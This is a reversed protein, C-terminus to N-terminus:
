RFTKLVAKGRPSVNYGIRLSETLGLGKLRRVRTKFWKTEVGLRAALDPARVGENNALLALIEVAHLRPDTVSADIRAFRKRLDAIDGDTLDSSNRLEIRPDAGGLRVKVRYLKRDAGPRLSAELDSVSSFGAAEAQRLDISSPEVVDVAEIVLQGVKTNLTGGAKVTPRKWNRFVLSIEGNAIGDLTAWKM